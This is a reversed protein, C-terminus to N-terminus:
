TRRRRSARHLRSDLPHSASRGGDASLPKMLTMSVVDVPCDFYHAGAAALETEAASRLGTPGDAFLHYRVSPVPDKSTQWVGVIRGRHVLTATSNGGGDYIFDHLAPDIFRHRDRYGQVYPDLLPLARVSSGMEVKDGASRARYLPGPWGDVAVDEVDLTDMASRCRGKTFGTWWSMDDIAVPGYSHVYRDILERIASEEDWRQLDVHPLADEWRHYQRVASRWNRPPAGGAVKGVECMRTVVGPLDVSQPVDLMQRLARVTLPGDALAEDVAATLRAYEQDTLGSDRLWRVALPEVIHRTAAAAIELLDTPFVFMTLRMARFRALRRSDWMEVDLDTRAFDPIRALLSFYPSVPSTNHLGVLNSAMGAISSGTRAFSHHNFSNALAQEATLTKVITVFRHEHSQPPPAYRGAESDVTSPPTSTTPADYDRNAPDTILPTCV